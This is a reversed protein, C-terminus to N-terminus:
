ANEKATDAQKEEEKEETAAAEQEGGEDAEMKEEVEEEVEEEEEKEEEEEVEPEPTAVVAVESPILVKGDVKWGTKLVELITDPEEEGEPEREEVKRHSLQDFKEGTETELVEVGFKSYTDTVKKFLLSYSDFLAKDGQPLDEPPVVGKGIDEALPVLKRLADQRGLDQARSMSEGHQRRYNALDAQLLLFGDLAKKVEGKAADREEMLSMEAKSPQRSGCKHCEDVQPFNKAGCSSCVWKQPKEEEPPTAKAEAKTEAESEEGEAPPEEDSPAEGEDAAKEDAVAEGKGEEKAKGKEEEGEAKEPAEAEAAAKEDSEAKRALGGGPRRRSGAALLAAASAVLISGTSLETPTAAGENVAAAGSVAGPFAVPWLARSTRSTAPARAVRHLPATFAEAPGGVPAGAFAALTAGAALPAARGRRPIAAVPMHPDAPLRGRVDSSPSNFAL